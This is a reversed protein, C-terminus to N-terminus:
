LVYDVTHRRNLLVRCQMFVLAFHMVKFYFDVQAELKKIKNQIARVKRGADLLNLAGLVQLLYINCKM